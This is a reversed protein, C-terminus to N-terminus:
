QVRGEGREKYHSKESKMRSLERDKTTEKKEQVEKKRGLLKKTGPRPPRKPIKTQGKGENMM